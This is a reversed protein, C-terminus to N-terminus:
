ISSSSCAKGLRYNTVVVTCKSDTSHQYPNCWSTQQTTSQLAANIRYHLLFRAWWIIAHGCVGLVFLYVTSWSAQNKPYHWFILSKASIGDLKLKLIFVRCSFFCSSNCMIFFTFFQRYSVYHGSFWARVETMASNMTVMGIVWCM